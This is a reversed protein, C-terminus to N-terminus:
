GPSLSKYYEEMPDDIIISGQPPMQHHARYITFSAIPVMNALFQTKPEEEEQQEKFGSHVAVIEKLIWHTTISDRVQSRVEPSLSLLEKQTITIAAEMSQKLVNVVIAPNHIPPVTRYAPKPKKTITLTTKDEIEVNKEAPPIYVANKAKRFPHEPAEQTHALTEEV